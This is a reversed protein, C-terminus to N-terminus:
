PLRPLTAQERGAGKCDLAMISKADWHWDTRVVALIYAGTTLTPRFAASSLEQAGLIPESQEPAGATMIRAPVCNRFV